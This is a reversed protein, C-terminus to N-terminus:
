NKSSMDYAWKSEPLMMLPRMDVEGKSYLWILMFYFFFPREKQIYIYIYLIFTLLNYIFNQYIIQLFFFSILTLM